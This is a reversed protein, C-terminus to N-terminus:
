LEGKTKNSTYANKKYTALKLYSTNVTKDLSAALLKTTFECGSVANYKNKMVLKETTEDYFVLHTYQNLHGHLASNKDV